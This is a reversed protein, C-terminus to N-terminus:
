KRRLGFKDGVFGVAGGMMGDMADEEAGLGLVVYMTWQALCRSYIVRFGRLLCYRKRRQLEVNIGLRDLLVPALKVRLHRM